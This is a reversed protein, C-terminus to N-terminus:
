ESSVLGVMAVAREALWGDIMVVQRGDVDLGTDLHAVCIAALGSRSPM